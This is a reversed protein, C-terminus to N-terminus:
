KKNTHKLQMSYHTENQCIQVHMYCVKIMDVVENGKSGRGERSDKIGKRKQLLRGEVKM